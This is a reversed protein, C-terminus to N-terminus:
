KWYPTAPFENDSAFSVAVDAVLPIAPEDTVRAFRCHSNFRARVTAMLFPFVVVTITGMANAGINIYNKPKVEGSATVLSTLDGRMVKGTQVTVVGRKSYVTSAYVGIAAILVASVVIVVKWKRKM